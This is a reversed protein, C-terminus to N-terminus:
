EIVKMHAKIQVHEIFVSVFCIYKHAIFMNLLIFFNYQSKLKTIHEVVLM